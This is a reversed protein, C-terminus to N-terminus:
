VKISTYVPKSQNGSGDIAVIKVKYTGPFVNRGNADRCDWAATVRGKRVWAGDLIMAVFEDKSNIVKIFVRTDESVTLSLTKGDVRVGTVTPPITELYRATLTYTQISSNGLFDCTMIYYYGKETVNFTATEEEGAMSSDVKGMLRGSTDYVELVGDIDNPVDLSVGLVGKAPVYLKYWDKDEIGMFTPRIASGSYIVGAKDITNNDEFADPVARFPKVCISYRGTSRGERAAVGIYYRGPKAPVFVGTDPQGLGGGGIETVPELYPEEPVGPDPIEEDFAMEKMIVADTDLDAPPTIFVLYPQPKEVNLVYIDIDDAPYLTGQKVEEPVLEVAKLPSDNIERDVFDFAKLSVKLSYDEASMSGWNSVQIYHRGPSATVELPGEEEEFYYSDSGYYAYGLPSDEPDSYLSLYCWTNEAKQFDISLVGTAPVDIEYWDEDDEKHFNGRVSEGIEIGAATQWTDNTEYNDKGFRFGGITLAYNANVSANGTEYVRIYYSGTGGEPLIIVQDEDEGQGGRNIHEYFWDSFYDIEDDEPWDRYNGVSEIDVALDLGEPVELFLRVAQGKLDIRYWDEDESDLVAGYVASNLNIRRAEGYSDNPEYSDAALDDDTLIAVTVSYNEESWRFHNGFVKIYYDGEELNMALGYVAEAVKLSSKSSFGWLWSEPSGEIEGTNFSSIVAGLRDYIEVGPSVKGAPLVELQLHSGEPVTIRFWDVDSGYDIKERFAEGDTLSIAKEMTGNADDINELSITLAKHMDIRGHGFQPDWGPDGLDTASAEIIQRVDDNSVNQDKALILAALGAVMPSAMSTGSMEAYTSGKYPDWYTSYIEEGPACIDIEPGYSSFGALNDEKDTASVSIVKSVAAPYSIEESAWNGAAAVLVVGKEYAYDIADALIKSPYNSGFSMNIVKAGHDAAWIIGDTISIDTGNWGDFVKVPMIKIGAIGAVGAVGTGNGTAAGAIGAVHTGHGDSDRASKLPNVTNVGPVLRDKLDPHNVDVGSDLVAIIVESGPHAADWGGAAKIKEMGWQRSYQLDNPKGLLRYTYNPQVYLVAPDNNIRAALKLLDTNESTSALVYGMRSDRRLLTLNYKKLVRFEDADSGRVKFIIEGQKFGPETVNYGSRAEPMEGAPERPVAFVGGPMALSMIMVVVALIRVRKFRKM